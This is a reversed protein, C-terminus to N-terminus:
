LFDEWRELRHDVATGTMPTALAPHFISWSRALARSTELFMAPTGIGRGQGLQGTQQAVDVTVIVVRCGELRNAPLQARRLPRRMVEGDRGHQEPQNHFL